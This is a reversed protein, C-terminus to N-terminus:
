DPSAWASSEKTPTLSSSSFTATAPGFQIPPLTPIKM